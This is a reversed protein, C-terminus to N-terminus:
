ARLVTVLLFIRAHLEGQEQHVASKVRLSGALNSILCGGTGSKEIIKKNEIYTWFQIFTKYFM